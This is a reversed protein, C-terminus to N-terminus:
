VGYSEFFNYFFTNILYNNETLTIFNTWLNQIVIIIDFLYILIKTFISVNM